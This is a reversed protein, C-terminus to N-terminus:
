AETEAALQTEIMQEFQAEVKEAFEDEMEYVDGFEVFDWRGYSGLYNVGPVWYTDMTDKKAQADEGRYGKIEVVLHLPDDAGHGDDIVVIFDPQYSHREGGMRYPVELGLSHNKVYRLM